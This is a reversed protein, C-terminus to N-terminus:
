ALEFMRSRAKKERWEDVAEGQMLGPVFADGVFRYLDNDMQRLVYPVQGCFIVVVADDEKLNQPGM